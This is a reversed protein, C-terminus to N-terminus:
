RESVITIRALRQNLWNKWGAELEPLDDVEDDNNYLGALHRAVAEWALRAGPSLDEWTLNPDHPKAAALWLSFIEKGVRSWPEGTLGEIIDEGKEALSLWPKKMESSLDGWGLTYESLLQLVRYSSAAVQEVTLGM